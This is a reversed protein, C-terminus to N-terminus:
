QKKLDAAVRILEQMLGRIHQETTLLNMVTLRLYRVGRVESSTIYFNGRQVVENRLALQFANSTGFKTYQFCLINRMNM